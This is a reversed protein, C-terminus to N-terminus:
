RSFPRQGAPMANAKVHPWPSVVPSRKAVRVLRRPRHPGPQALLVAQKRMLQYCAYAMGYFWWFLDAQAIDAKTMQMWTAVLASLIGIRAWELDDVDDPDPARARRLLRGTMVLSILVFVILFPLGVESSMQVFTNHAVHFSAGRYEQPLYHLKVTPFSQLGTGFLPYDQVIRKGIEFNQYRSLASADMKTPDVTITSMREMYTQPVFTLFLFVALGGAIVLRFQRMLLFFAASGALLCLLGGRSGTAVIATLWLPILGIAVIRQWGRGRMAKYYLFAITAALMWATYNSGGGQGVATDARVDGYGAARWSLIAVKVFWMLGILIATIFGALRGPTDCLKQILFVAVFIKAILSLREWSDATSFPAFVTSVLYMALLLLIWGSGQLVPGRHNALYGIAITITLWKVPTIFEEAGYMDPRFFYLVALALLGLYPRFLSLGSGAAGMLLFIIARIGM